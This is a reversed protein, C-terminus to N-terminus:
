PEVIIKCHEEPNGLADFAWSIEDLPVRATVLPGVDIVGEAINHLSTAFEEPSYGLAFRVSLEKSIGFYPNISDTEMCVGVVVVRAERPARKLVDDLIGPVGIAEFVVPNGGEWPSEERPDVTRSAGLAGALARRAPSLDSAVVEEVGRAKLAAIVSLGVPGCGLVLASEGDQIGSKNVAHLGVAMPETLAAHHAPLGNPVPLLLPASLLLREGYGAAVTNSYVIPQMGSEGLLIPMSTVLDGARATDVGPGVELVEAAFEHGMFVDRDLDIGSPRGMEEGLALMQDGFKAFHLDSGCIGCASVQALVQGPGPVPEPVDDRVVIRGSNLAAARM